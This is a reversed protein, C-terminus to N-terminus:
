REDHVLSSDRVAEFARLFREWDRAEPLPLRDHLDRPDEFLDPFRVIEVPVRQAVATSLALGIGYVFDNKAWSRGQEGVVHGFTRSRSDVVADLDRLVLVVAEVTAGAAFWVPLTWCFRPDKVVSTMSSLSRLREGHEAAIEAVKPWDVVDLPLGRYRSWDVLAALHGFLGPRTRLGDALRTDVRAGRRGWRGRRARRGMAVSTGLAQMLAENVEVFSSDELGASDRPRWPGGPDFGLERYLLAVFSTGSRGPGTVVIM